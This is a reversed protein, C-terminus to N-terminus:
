RYHDFDIEDVASLYGVKAVPVEIGSKLIDV